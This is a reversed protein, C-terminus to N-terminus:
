RKDLKITVIFSLGTFPFGMDVVGV